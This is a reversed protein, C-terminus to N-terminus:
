NNVEMKFMQPPLKLLFAGWKCCDSFIAPVTFVQCAKLIICFSRKNSIKSIHIKFIWNQHSLSKKKEIALNARARQRFINYCYSRNLNGCYCCQQPIVCGLALFLLTDYLVQYDGAEWFIGPCTREQRLVSWSRLIHGPIQASCTTATPSTLVHILQIIYLDSRQM